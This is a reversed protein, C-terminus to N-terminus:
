PREISDRHDGPAEGLARLLATDHVGAIPTPDLVGNRILRLRGPRETVLM